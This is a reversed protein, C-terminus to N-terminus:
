RRPCPPALRHRHLKKVAVPTGNHPTGVTTLSAVREAMGERVIMHRADLGGMSHAILHM